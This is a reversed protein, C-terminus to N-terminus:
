SCSCRLEMTRSATNMSDRSLGDMSSMWCTNKPHRGSRDFCGLVVPIYKLPVGYGAAEVILFTGFYFHPAIKELDVSLCSEMKAMAYVYVYVYVYMCVYIYIYIYM